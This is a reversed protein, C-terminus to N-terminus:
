DQDVLVRVPGFLGSVTQGPFVFPTPSVADLYPALTNTVVIELENDGSAVLDTVDFRYPALVRVGASQGGIFVEATGRVTGLDLWVKRTGSRDPPVDLRQRYHVAGSFDTLGLEQWDGFPMVGEGLEFAIPGRLIAGGEFGPVTQVRIV